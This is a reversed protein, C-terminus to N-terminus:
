LRMEELELSVVIFNPSTKDSTSALLKMMTLNSVVIDQVMNVKRSFYHRDIGLALLRLIKGRSLPGFQLQSAAQDPDDQDVCCVGTEEGEAGPQSYSTPCFITLPQSALLKTM